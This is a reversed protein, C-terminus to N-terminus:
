RRTLVALAIACSWGGVVPTEVPDLRGPRVRVRAWRESLYGATLGTGLWGLVRRPRDDPGRLPRATAWVQPGLLYHPPSYATGFWPRDRVIHEPSGAMFPADFTRRRLLAVVHGVAHAALQISSVAVLTSRHTM